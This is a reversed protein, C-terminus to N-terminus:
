IIKAKRAELYVERKAMLGVGLGLVVAVLKLLGGVLPLLGILYYGMMGILFMVAPGTKKNLRMLVEGGLWYMVWIKAVYLLCAFAFILAMAVPIGIISVMLVLILVPTVVMALVGVGFGMWTKEKILGVSKDAFKDFATVIVLGLILSIVLNIGSFVAKVGNLVQGATEKIKDTNMSEGNDMWSMGKVEHKMIEGGVVSGESTAVENDSWYDVGGVVDAQGNLRMEGVAALVKGGVKNGLVLNGTAARIDGDVVGDVQVMGGATLLDGGVVTGDMLRIEGGAITVNKGVESNLTLQGGAVRIDQGVNGSINIQGGAAIVDGGVNGKVDIMGGVAYVDGKVEGLVEVVDGWAYYNGEIVEDENLTMVRQDDKAWSVQTFAGMLVGILLLIAGFKIKKMYKLYSLVGM